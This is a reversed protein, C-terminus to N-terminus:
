CWTQISTFIFTYKISSDVTYKIKVTTPENPSVTHWRCTISIHILSLSFAHNYTCSDFTGIKFSCPVYYSCDIIFYPSFCVSIYWLVLEPPPTSISTQLRESVKTFDYFMHKLLFVPWPFLSIFDYINWHPTCDFQFNYGLLLFSNSTADTLTSTRKYLTPSKNTIRYCNTEVKTCKIFLFQTFLM